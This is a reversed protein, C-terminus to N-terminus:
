STISHKSKIINAAISVAIEHTTQSNISVGAPADITNLRRPDAGEDILQKFLTKIKAESGLLGLYAFKKNLLSKLVVTDSRYGFTMIVTYHASGEPVIDAINEYDVVKKQHAFVNLEMTHLQPRDDYVTVHFELRSALETLALAIHGGGIIHLFHGYGLPELYRWDDAKLEFHKGTVMQDVLQIAMPTVKLTPGEGKELAEIIRVLMQRHGHDLPIAAVWQEGSCIMGSRHEPVQAQHIQHKLAIEKQGNKLADKCWEVLKHEMIGGGISGCMGGAPDLAMKFGGRGPSSGLHKVVLLLMGQGFNDLSKLLANWLHIESNQSSKDM